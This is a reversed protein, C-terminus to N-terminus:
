GIKSKLTTILDGVACSEEERLALNKVSVTPFEAGVIVALKAGNQEAAQFQKGVKAPTLPFGTRFGSERLKQVIGLADSRKEDDAVVVFVDLASAEGIASTLKENTHATERILDTIVMDGM